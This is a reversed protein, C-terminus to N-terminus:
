CLLGFLIKRDTIIHADTKISRSAFCNNANAQTCTMRSPHLCENSQKAENSALNSASKFVCTTPGYIVVFAWLFADKPKRKANAKVRKRGSGVVAGDHAPVLIFDEM